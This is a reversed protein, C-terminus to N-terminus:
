RAVGSPNRAIAPLPQGEACDAKKLGSETREIQKKLSNVALLDQDRLAVQQHEITDSARQVFGALLLYM